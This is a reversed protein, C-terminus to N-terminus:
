SHKSDSDSEECEFVEGPELLQRIAPPLYRGELASGAESKLAGALIEIHLDLPDNPSLVVWTKGKVRVCASTSAFDTDPAQGGRLARVELGVEDALEFLAELVSTPDM